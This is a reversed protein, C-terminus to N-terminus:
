RRRCRAPACCRRSTPPRSRRHLQRQDPGAGGIIPERIVPASLVKGDLVIAFPKGVNARTITPSAAARRRNDFGSRSSRSTRHAPRLRRPCRTLRDGPLAVREEIPYREDGDSGPLMEVGPPLTGTPDVTALM